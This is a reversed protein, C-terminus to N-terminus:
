EVVFKKGAIWRHADSLHLSYMGAALGSMDLVLEDGTSTPVQQQWVLKGEQSTVSIVLPGETKLNTPLQISVHLLDKVPNPYLTLANGLNTIIETVGTADCGPVICGMSDMKVVWADQSTGPPFPFDYPLDGFGSAIFGGDATPLVDWFRGECSDLQDNFSAYRRMWLSDGTSTARLLLGQEWGGEYSVGCAIIDTNPCEKAAFFLTSWITEGYEREWVFSGDVSDLLALYPKTEDPAHAQGGAVLVGGAMTLTTYTTGEKFPGGWSTRWRLEGTPGVRQVWHQSDDGTLFRSGSMYLDGDPAEDVATLGDIYVPNQWGYTQRWLENGNADTRILFGDQDGTHDTGGCVIFGGDALCKVQQGIWYEGAGGFTRSWLSDGQADFRVLRTEDVDDINQSSGGVVFGGGPVTDCCDAWGLFEQHVPRHYRRQWNLNGQNDIQQLIISYTALLSDPTITDPEYSFSFVVHGVVSRELGYSGQAFGQGFADYRRNYAQAHAGLLCCWAVGLLAIRCNRM